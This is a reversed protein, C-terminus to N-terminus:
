KSILQFCGQPRQEVRVYNYFRGEEKTSIRKPRNIKFNFAENM